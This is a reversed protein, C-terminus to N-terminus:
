RGMVTQVVADVVEKPVNEQTVPTWGGGMGGTGCSPPSLDALASGALLGLALVLAIGRM